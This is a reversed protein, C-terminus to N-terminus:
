PQELRYSSVEHFPRYGLRTNVALMPANTEDNETVVSVIGRGSAWELQCLKVIRALGRGRFARLTGTMDNMARDGEARLLTIAVPRGGHVVAFSGDHALQPHEWYQAIWDDLPIETPPVDLPVDRTTEMDVAHVDEPRVETLPVVAFGDAAVRARLDDLASFDVTRPDVRSYRRTHTRTFGRRELFGRGDDGSADALLLRAGADHVHALVRDYLAAGLGRRRRDPRVTVGAYAAGQEEAYVHLMGGGTAVVEGNDVAVWRRQRAQSPMSALQHRLGAESTLQHPNAERLVRVVAAVDDDRFERIEM